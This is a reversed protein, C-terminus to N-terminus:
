RRLNCQRYLPPALMFGDSVAQTAEESAYKSQFPKSIM